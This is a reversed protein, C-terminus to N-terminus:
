QGESINAYNGLEKAVVDKRGRLSWLSLATTWAINVTLALPTQIEEPIYAFNVAMYANWFTLTGIASYVFEKGPVNALYNDKFNEWMNGDGSFVRAYHKALEVPNYDTKEGITGNVFFFTNYALGWFNPGLASKAMPHDSIYEGVLNGTGILGEVALGYVPALAATYKLKKLDIKRDEIFQSIADAVTFTVEATAMALILPHHQQFERYGEVVINVLDM